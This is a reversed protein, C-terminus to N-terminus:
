LANGLFSDVSCPIGKRILSDCLVKAEASSKVPGAVLAYPASPPGGLVYRPELNGLEVGHRESMLGWSLRLADVSPGATLRIGVPSATARTVIASGFSIPGAQAPVTAPKDTNAAEDGVSGTEIPTPVNPKIEITPRVLQAIPEPKAEARPASAVSPRRVPLPIESEVITVREGPLTGSVPAVNSKAEANVLEFDVPRGDRTAREGATQPPAAATEGLRSPMAAAASRAGMLEKELGTVRLETARIQADREALTQRLGQLSVQAQDLDERLREAEAVAAARQGENSQPQSITRGLAPWWEALLQPKLTSVALYAAAALGILAWLVVYLNGQGRTAPRPAREPALLFPNLEASSM